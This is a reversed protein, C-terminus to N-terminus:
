YQELVHRIGSESAAYVKLPRNIKNSLFDVAQVNGADLMAVVLMEQMEGLPVAMYHEATDKPLLQLVKPDIHAQQLNVYPLNSAKAYARTLDEDSIHGDNILLSFLPQNKSKAASKLDELQKANLLGEEVLADEVHQQTTQTLINM